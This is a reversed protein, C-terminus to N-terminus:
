DGHMLCTLVVWLMGIGLGTAVDAPSMPQALAPAGVPTGLSNDQEAKGEPWLQIPM